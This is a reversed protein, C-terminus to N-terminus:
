YIYHDIAFAVFNILKKFNFPSYFNWFIGVIIGLVSSITLLNSHYFVFNAISTNAILNILNALFYLIYKKISYSPKHRIDNFTLLQNLIYNQITTLIFTLIYVFIYDQYIHM